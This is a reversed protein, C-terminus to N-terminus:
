NIFLKVGNKLAEEERFSKMSSDKKMKLFDKIRIKIFIKQKWPKYFWVVVYGKAATACFCDFPKQSTYRRMMGPFIPQDTIKHYLAGDEVALLALLQHDKVADYRISIGSSIKLEYFESANPPDKTLFKGFFTQM